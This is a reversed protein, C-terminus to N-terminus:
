HRTIIKAHLRKITRSATTECLCPIAAHVLAAFAAGFLAGSFKLAFAAHQLYTEDVSQPHTVFVRRLVGDHSTATPTPATNAKTMDPM